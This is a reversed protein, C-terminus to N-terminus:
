YPEYGYDETSSYRCQNLVVGLVNTHEAIERECTDIESMRTSEAKALMLACDVDKLFARTDSSNLIPPLDFIVLDPEYEKEIADLVDKTQRRLLISTPDSAPGRAMAVALNSRVRLAQEAFSIEGSLLSTIDREPMAGLVEAMRPRRLDLEILIVRLDTQRTFGLALNCATTTKGCATTPSTVAMRTWNNKGMLLQIKTRLVDFPAARSDADLSVLLNKDLRTRDLELPPLAAWLADRSSAQKPGKRASRLPDTNAEAIGRQDRAKQLAKQLKEM